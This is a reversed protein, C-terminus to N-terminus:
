RRLAAADRVLAAVDPNLVDAQRAIPLYRKAKGRGHLLGEPDALSAGHIFSLAPVGRRIEILCINGGIAGFPADPHYYCLCGFRIAEAADPVLGLVIRRLGRVLKRIGPPVLALHDALQAASLRQSRPPKHLNKRTDAQVKAAM